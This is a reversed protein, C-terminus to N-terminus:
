DALPCGINWDDPSTLSSVVVDRVDDKVGDVPDLFGMRCLLDSESADLRRDSGLCREILARAAPANSCFLTTLDSMVAHVVPAPVSSGNKLKRMESM